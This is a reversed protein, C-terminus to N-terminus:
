SFTVLVNSCSLGCFIISCKGKGSIGGEIYIVYSIKDDYGCMGGTSWNSGSLENFQNGGSGKNKGM